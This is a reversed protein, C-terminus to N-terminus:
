GANAEEKVPVVRGSAVWQRWDDLTVPHLDGFDRGEIRYGVIMMGSPFSQSVIEIGLVAQMVTSRWRSGVGPAGDETSM